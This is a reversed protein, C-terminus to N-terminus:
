GYFTQRYLPVFPPSEDLKDRLYEGDSLPVSGKEHSYLHKLIRQKYDVLQEGPLIMPVLERQDDDHFYEFTSRKLVYVVLLVVVVLLTKELNLLYMSNSKSGIM